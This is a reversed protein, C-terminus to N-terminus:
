ETEEQQDEEESGPEAAPTPPASAEIPLRVTEAGRLALVHTRQVEVIRWGKYSSGPRVMAVSGDPAQLMASAAGKVRVFGVARAGELAAGKDAVGGVGAERRGPSFLPRSLILPDATVPAVVLPPLRLPRIFGADPLEVPSPLALRVLALLGILGALVAPLLTGDASAPSPISVPFKLASM